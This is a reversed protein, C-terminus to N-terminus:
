SRGEVDGPFAEVQAHLYESAMLMEIDITIDNAGTVFQSLPDWQSATVEQSDSVTNRCLFVFDYLTNINYNVHLHCTILM